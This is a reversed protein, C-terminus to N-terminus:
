YIKNSRYDVGMNIIIMYIIKVSELVTKKGKMHSPKNEKYYWVVKDQENTSIRIHTQLLFYCDSISVYLEHLTMWCMSKM